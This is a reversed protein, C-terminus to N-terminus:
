SEAERVQVQALAEGIQEAAAASAAQAERLFRKRAEESEGLDVPLFKLAVLRGLKLDKALYVIGMGGEGIKKEIKYRNDVTTGILSDTEEAGEMDVLTAGDQPCFEEDGLYKKGCTPCARM